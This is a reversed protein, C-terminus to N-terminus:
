NLIFFTFQCIIIRTPLGPLKYLVKTSIFEWALHLSCYFYGVMFYVMKIAKSRKLLKWNCLQLKWHMKERIIILWISAIERFSSNHLVFTKSLHDKWDNQQWNGVISHDFLFTIERLIQATSSKKLIGCQVYRVMRSQLHLKPDLISILTMVLSNVFTINKIPTDKEVLPM